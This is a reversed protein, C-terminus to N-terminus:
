PPATATPDPSPEEKGISRLCSAILTLVPFELNLPSTWTKTRVDGPASYMLTLRRPVINPLM